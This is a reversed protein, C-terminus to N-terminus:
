EGAERYSFVDVTATRELLEGDIQAPALAVDSWFICTQMATPASTASYRQKQVHQPVASLAALLEADMASLLRGRDMGGNGSNGATAYIIECRLSALPLPSQTDVKAETWRLRFTDQHDYSSALENEEVLMGPRSQGRVLVTRAPNLAAIRDRLTLYFTDKANQM